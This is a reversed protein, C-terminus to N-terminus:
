KFSKSDFEHRGFQDIKGFLHLFNKLDEKQKPNIIYHKSLNNADADKHAIVAFVLLLDDSIIYKTKDWDGTIPNTKLLIEPKGAYQKFLLLKEIDPQFNPYSYPIYKLEIIAIIENKLSVLLDPKIKKIESKRFNNSPLIEKQFWPM